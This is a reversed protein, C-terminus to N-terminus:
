PEEPPAHVTSCVVACITPLTNRNLHGTKQLAAPTFRNRVKLHWKSFDLPSSDNGLDVCRFTQCRGKRYVSFEQTALPLLTFHCPSIQGKWNVFVHDLPNFSCHSEDVGMFLRVDEERAVEDLEADIRILEEEPIGGPLVGQEDITRVLFHPEMLRVEVPHFRAALEIYHQLRPLTFRNKTFQLCLRPGASGEKKKWQTIRGINFLVRNFRRGPNQKEYVRVDGCGMRFHISDIYPLLNEPIPRVGNTSVVVAAGSSHVNRVMRGFEPHLLPEGWGRFYVTRFRHTQELVQDFRANTMEADVWTDEFASRPCPPCKLNCRSTVELELVRGPRDAVSNVRGELPSLASPVESPRSQNM